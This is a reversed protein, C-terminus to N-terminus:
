GQSSQGASGVEGEGSQGSPFYAQVVPKFMGVIQAIADSVIKQVAEIRKDDLAEEATKRKTEEILREVEDKKMYMDEVKLGMKELTEKIKVRKAEFDKYAEEFEEVADRPKEELEEAKPQPSEPAATFLRLAKQAARIVSQKKAELEELEKEFSSKLDEPVETRIGYEALRKEAEVVAPPQSAAKKKFREPRYKELDPDSWIEEYHQKYYRPHLKSKRLAEYVSLGSKVLEKFKKAREAMSVGTEKAVEESVEM